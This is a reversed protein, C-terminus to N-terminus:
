NGGSGAAASYRGGLASSTIDVEVTFHLQGDQATVGGLLPDGLGKIKGLADVYAAVAVPTRALGSITLTGVKREGSTNPLQVVTRAAVDTKPVLRGSVGTLAIEAPGSRTVAALLRPWQLDTALLVALQSSIVKSQGQVSVVDAFVRQQRLVAQSDEEVATLTTRAAATQYTTLGYWAVLVVVFAALAALVVRRVKRERRSEVIEVPLLNAAIAPVRLPRGPAALEAPPRAQTSAAATPTSM